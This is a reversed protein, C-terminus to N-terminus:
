EKWHGLTKSFDDLHTEQKAISILTERNKSVFDKILRLEGDTLDIQADKVLIRPNEEISMSYLKKWDSKDAKNGQFKIRRYPGIKEWCDMEDVFLHAPLGTVNKSLLSMYWQRYNEAENDSLSQIGDDWYVGKGIDKIFHEHIVKVSVRIDTIQLIDFWSLIRYREIFYNKVNEYRKPKLNRIDDCQFYVSETWFPDPLMDQLLRSFNWGALSSMENYPLPFLPNLEISIYFGTLYPDNGEIRKKLTCFQTRAEEYGLSFVEKVKKNLEFLKNKYNKTWAFNYDLISRRVSLMDELLEKEKECKERGSENAMNKQLQKTVKYYFDCVRYEIDTVDYADEFNKIREERSMILLSKFYERGFTTKSV